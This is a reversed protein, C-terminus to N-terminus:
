LRGNILKRSRLKLTPFAKRGMCGFLVRLLCELELPSLFFASFLHSSFPMLSWLFASVSCLTFVSLSSLLCAWTGLWTELDRNSYKINASLIFGREGQLYHPVTCYNCELFHALVCHDVKISEVQCCVYKLNHDNTALFVAIADFHLTIVSWCCVLRNVPTGRHM